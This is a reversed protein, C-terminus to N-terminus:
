LRGSCNEGSEELRKIYARTMLQFNFKPNMLKSVIRVETRLCHSWERLSTFDRGRIPHEEGHDEIVKTNAEVAETVNEFRDAGSSNFEHM